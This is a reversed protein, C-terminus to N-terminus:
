DWVYREDIAINHRICLERFEDQFTMRKHHEEQNGIYNRVQPINSESVSFAGYGAQWAFNGLQPSQRKLWKSTETKAVEIVKMMAFKRSLLVLGHIHDEVGNLLLAPSDVNDRLITAMYAYLEKRLTAGRLCPDRNKTSFVIHITVRALSQPM